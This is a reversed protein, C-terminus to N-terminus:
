TWRVLVGGSDEARRDGKGEAKGRGMAAAPENHIICGEALWAIEQLLPALAPPSSDPGM